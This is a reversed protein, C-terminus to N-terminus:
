RGRVVAASLFYRDEDDLHRRLHDLAQRLEETVDTGLAARVVRHEAVHEGFADGGLAVPRLFQEEYRSHRDFASRLQGIALSLTTSDTPSSELEDALAECRDILERLAEHEALLETLVRSPITTM